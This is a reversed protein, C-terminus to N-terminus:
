YFHFRFYSSKGWFLWSEDMTLVNRKEKEPVNTLINLLKESIEIRQKKMKETLEHPIFKLNSKKLDLEDLVIRKVTNKHLNIKEGIKRYSIHNKENILEKIKRKKRKKPRGSRKEEEFDEKGDNFLKTWKQVTSLSISKEGYIDIIQDFIEKNSLKKLFLFHIVPRLHKNM